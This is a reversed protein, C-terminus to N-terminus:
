SQDVITYGKSYIEDWKNSDMSCSTYYDVYKLKDIGIDEGCRRCYILQARYLRAVEGCKNSSKMIKVKRYRKKHGVRECKFKGNFFERIFRKM